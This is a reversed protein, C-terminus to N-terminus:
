GAGGAIVDRGLAEARAEAETSAWRKSFERLVGGEQYLRADFAIRGGAGTALAGLPIGCGGGIGRLFARETSAAIRTPPHDLAGVLAAVRGDGARVQVALAGQGPAPLMEDFPIPAMFLGTLDPRLRGIGAEALVIACWDANERLKRIRTDVNGRIPVVTADPRVRLIELRRRPSGTAIVPGAALERLSGPGRTVLVDHASAREPVAAVVLGPPDDVPLDKLSHVALDITGRLLERELEATFLGKPLAEVTADGARRQLRDGQTRIVKLEVRLGPHARALEDAVWRSQTLALGSGRTGLVLSETGM